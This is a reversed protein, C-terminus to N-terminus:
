SGAHLLPFRQSLSFHLTCFSLVYRCIVSKEQPESTFSDAQLAPSMPEIGPDPLDGQPPYTLGSWPEKRSFGM